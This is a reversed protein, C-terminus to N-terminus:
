QRQPHFRLHGLTMEGGGVTRFPRGESVQRELRTQFRLDLALPELVLRLEVDDSRTELFLRQAKALAAGVRRLYVQRTVQHLKLHAGSLKLHSMRRESGVTM